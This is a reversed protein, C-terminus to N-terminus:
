KACKVTCEPDIWSDLNFEPLNEFKSGFKATVDFIIKRLCSDGFDKRDFEQPLGYTKRSPGEIPAILSPILWSLISSSSQPHLLETLACDLELPGLLSM